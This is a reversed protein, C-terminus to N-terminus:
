NSSADFICFERVNSRVELREPTGGTDCVASTSCTDLDAAAEEDDSSALVKERPESLSFSHRRGTFDHSGDGSVVEFMDQLNLHSRSSFSFKEYKVMPSNPFTGPVSGCETVFVEPSAPSTEPAPNKLSSFDPSRCSASVYSKSFGKGFMREISRCDFPATEGQSDLGLFQEEVAKITKALDPSEGGVDNEELPLEPFVDDISRNRSQLFPGDKTKDLQKQNPSLAEKSSGNPSSSKQTAVVEATGVKEEEVRVKNSPNMTKKANCQSGSKTTTVISPGPMSSPRRLLSRMLTSDTRKMVLAEGKDTGEKKDGQKRGSFLMSYSFGTGIINPDKPPSVSKVVPHKESPFVRNGQSGVDKEQKGSRNRFRISRFGGSSVPKAPIAKSMSPLAKSVDAKVDGSQERNCLEPLEVKVGESRPSTVPLTEPLAELVVSGSDPGQKEVVKELPEDQGGLDIKFGRISAENTGLVARPSGDVKKSNSTRSRKPSPSKASAVLAMEFRRRSAQEQKCPEHRTRSSRSGPSGMEAVLHGSHEAKDTRSSPQSKLSRSSSNSVSGLRGHSSTIVRKESRFSAGIESESERKLCYRSRPSPLMSPELTKVAAELLRVTNKSGLVSPSLLSSNSNQSKSPLLTPTGTNLRALFPQKALVKNEDQASSTKRESSRGPRSARSDGYPHAHEGFHGASKKRQSVPGRTTKSDHPKKAFGPLKEKLSKKSHQFEQRLLEQLLVPPSGLQEGVLTSQLYQSECKSSSFTGDPLSELGM